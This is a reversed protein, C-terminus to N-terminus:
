VDKACRFGVKEIDTYTSVKDVQHSLSALTQTFHEQEMLMADKYSAEATQLDEQVKEVVAWLKVHGSEGAAKDKFADDPLLVGKQHLFTYRCRIRTKCCNFLDVCEL